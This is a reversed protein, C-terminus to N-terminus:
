IAEFIAEPVNRYSNGKVPSQLVVKLAVGVRPRKLSSLPCARSQLMSERTSTIKVSKRGLPTSATSEKTEGNRYVSKVLQVVVFM